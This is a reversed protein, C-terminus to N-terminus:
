KKDASFEIVLWLNNIDKLSDNTKLQWTTETSPININKKPIVKNTGNNLTFRENVSVNKNNKITLTLSSNEITHDTFLTLSIIGYNKMNARLREPNITINLSTGSPEQSKFAQWGPQQSLYIVHNGNFPSSNNIIKKKFSESGALATYKLAFIVDTINAFDLNNNEKPMELLWSSVVGTGEFPLYREENFNLTFMGYDDIGQSLAIQQNPRVDVKLSNGEDSTVIKNTLQTLSAHINQYPGIVMPISVSITKIQRCYHGPFDYDFELESFDFTCSGKTKLNYLAKADLQALSITKRIELRRENQDTFAKEMRQLDLRLGEGSLLGEYLSNWYNPKIFSSTQKEVRGVHEFKWANEAQTAIEHALQYAQFYLASLKGVYWQYLQENTFKKMFFNAVKSDQEISIQLLDIEQQALSKQYQAAIIQLNIQNIDDQALTEQLQWDESRRQYSGITGALGSEINMLNGLGEAISAGQNIADGFKMGGDALGYISPLSYGIISAVKIAEVAAQVSISESQLSIQKKEYTSLGTGILQSYHQKRDQAAQLGAQLVKINQEAANLQDEKSSQTLQLINQRNTNYLIALKEADKKELVSLLTQGLQIVTETVEKAKAVMVNFRYYPIVSNLSAIAQDIGEGSAIAEVLLMPNIAPQFLPLLDLQGDINLGHRINYLRQKVTDWYSLFQKNRPIGFYPHSVWLIFEGSQDENSSFIYIAEPSAFILNIRYQLIWPINPHIWDKRGKPLVFLGNLAIVYVSGNISKIDSTDRAFQTKSWNICNDESVWLAYNSDIAYAVGLSTVHVNYITQNLSGIKPQNWAENNFQYWLGISTGVLILNDNSSITFIDGKTLQTPQSWSNGLDNSIWLGQTVTGLYVTNGQSYITRIAAGQLNKDSPQKFTKGGDSSIFVGENSSGVFLIGNLLIYCSINGEIIPVKINIWEKTDNSFKYMEWDAFVYIGSENVFIKDISKGQMITGTTIEIFTEGIDRSIYLGGVTGM